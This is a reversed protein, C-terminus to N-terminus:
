VRRAHQSLHDHAGGSRRGLTGEVKARLDTMEVNGADDCSVPVVKFGVMVASAPNTGHRFLPILCVRATRRCKREKAFIIAPIALLGAYEGQSGANPQLSVAAFGTIEALWGELQAFMERYGASQDAPCFPHMRGVEPWSLPMMEAAANLKMTCSGLPIMSRNLAVDRHELRRLYRMMETETRHEHFVPHTLFESARALSVLSAGLKSDDAGPGVQRCKLEM